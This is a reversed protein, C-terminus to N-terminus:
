DDKIYKNEDFSHHHFLLMLIVYPRNSPQNSKNKKQWDKLLRLKRVGFLERGEEPKGTQRPCPTGSRAEAMPTKKINM